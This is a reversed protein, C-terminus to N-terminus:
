VYKKQTLLGLTIGGIISFLIMLTTTIIVFELSFYYALVPLLPIKLARNFLFIAIMSDKLGQRKLDALFSYWIYIPGSSLIGLSVVLFYKKWGTENILKRKIKQSDLIYNFVFMLVFAGILSPLIKLFLDIFKTLSKLFIDKNLFLLLLYILIVLILFKVGKSLNKLKKNEKKM